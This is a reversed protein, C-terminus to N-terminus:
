IEEFKETERNYKVDWWDKHGGYGMNQEGCEVHCLMEDEDGNYVIVQAYGGNINKYGNDVYVAYEFKDLNELEKKSPHILHYLEEDNNFFRAIAKPIVKIYKTDFKNTKKKM